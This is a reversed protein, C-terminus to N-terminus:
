WQDEGWGVAVEDEDEVTMDIESIEVSEGTSGILHNTVYRWADMAHDGHKIPKEKAKDWEYSEIERWTETCRADITHKPRKDPGDALSDQCNHIGGLVDNNAPIVDVYGLGNNALHLRLSAIFGAASPDIIISQVGDAWLINDDGRLRCLEEIRRITAEQTKGTEYWEFFQHTSTKNSRKGIAIIATPNSYGIDVGLVIDHLPHVYRLAHKKRDTTYILGEAVSWKGELYRARRTGSFARLRECTESPLAPNDAITTHIYERTAFAEAEQSEVNRPQRVFYDYLWHSPPGPNTAAFIQLCYSDTNRICGLLRDWEDRDLEIAEDVGIASFNIGGLREPNDCGFYYIKSGNHLNIIHTSKNHIYIEPPLIPLMGSEPHLLTRLTNQRLSFFTKRTLGVFSGPHCLAHLAVKSCLARTKGAAYGGCFLVEPAMCEVFDSQKNFLDFTIKSM